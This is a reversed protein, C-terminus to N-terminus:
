RGPVSWVPAETRPRSKEQGGGPVEVQGNVWSHGARVWRTLLERVTLGSVHLLTPDIGFDAVLERRRQEAREADGRITFSRQVSGGSAPDRGIVVRVEFVGPSRERISGSGRAARPAVPRYALPTM